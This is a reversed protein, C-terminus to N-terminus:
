ALRGQDEKLSSSEQSKALSFTLRTKITAMPSSTSTSDSSQTSEMMSQEKELENVQERSTLKWLLHALIFYRFWMLMTQGLRESSRKLSILSDKLLAEKQNPCCLWKTYNSTFFIELLFMRYLTPETLAIWVTQGSWEKNIAFCWWLIQIWSINKMSGLRSKLWSITM